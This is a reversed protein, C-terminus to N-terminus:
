VGRVVDEVSGDGNLSTPAQPELLFVKIATDLETHVGVVCGRVKQGSAREVIECMDQETAETFAARARRVEESRGIRILTREATTFVSQLVCVICDDHVYTKAKIPGRGYLKANLRVLERSIESAVPGRQQARVTGETAMDARM